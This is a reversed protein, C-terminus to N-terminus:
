STFIGRTVCYQRYAVGWAHAARTQLRYLRRRRRRNFCSRNLMREIRRIRRAQKKM